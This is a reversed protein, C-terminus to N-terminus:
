PEPKLKEAAQLAQIMKENDRPDSGSFAEPSPYGLSFQIHNPNSALDDMVVVGAYSLSSVPTWFAGGYIRDQGVCVVFPIGDVDVPLNFLDRVRQYASPTLQMDHSSRTYSQIDASAILPDARLDLADLDAAQFDATSM